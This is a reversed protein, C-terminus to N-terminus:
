QSIYNSRSSPNSHRPVVQIPNCSFHSECAPNLFFFKISRPRTDGDPNTGRYFVVVRGNEGGYAYTRSMIHATARNDGMYKDWQDRLHICLHCGQDASSSLTTWYRVHTSYKISKTSFSRQLVWICANCLPSCGYVPTIPQLCQEDLWHHDDPGRNESHEKDTRPRCTM